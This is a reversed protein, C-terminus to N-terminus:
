FSIKRLVPVCIGLAHCHRVVSLVADKLKRFVRLCKVLYMELSVDAIVWVKCGALEIPM